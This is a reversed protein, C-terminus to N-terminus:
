RGQLPGNTVSGDARKRKRNFPTLHAGVGSMLPSIIKIDDCRRQRISFGDFIILLEEALTTCPLQVCFLGAEVIQAIKLFIPCYEVGSVDPLLRYRNLSTDTDLLSLCTAVVFPLPILVHRPVILSVTTHGEPVAASSPM